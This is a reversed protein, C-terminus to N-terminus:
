LLTDLTNKLDMLSIPKLMLKNVGIETLFDPTLNPTGTIIVLPIDSRIKKIESCLDSGLLEPMTQDALVIDFKYPSKKFIALAEKSKTTLSVSYGLHMLMKNFLDINIQEDDVLLIHKKVKEMNNLLYLYYFKV